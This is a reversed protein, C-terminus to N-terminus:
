GASISRREAVAMEAAIRRMADVLSPRFGTEVQKAYAAANNGSLLITQTMRTRQESLPAFRWEFTLMARDLQMELVFSTPPQVERIDWHLPEKGPLLTTGRAGAVFPGDLLFKGPPDNWTSVDTRYKWAFDPSVEAVISHEFQLTIGSVEPILHSM